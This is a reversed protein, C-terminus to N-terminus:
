ALDARYDSRWDRGPMAPRASPSCMPESQSALALPALQAPHLGLGVRVARSVVSRWRRVSQSVAFITAVFGNGIAKIANAITTTAITTTTKM